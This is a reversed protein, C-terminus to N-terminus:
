CSINLVDTGNTQATDSSEGLQFVSDTSKNPLPVNHINNSQGGM